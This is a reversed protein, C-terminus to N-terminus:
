STENQKEKQKTIVSQYVTQVRKFHSLMTELDNISLKEVVGEDVAIQLRDILIQLNQM